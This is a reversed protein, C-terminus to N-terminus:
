RNRINELLGAAEVEPESMSGDKMYRVFGGCMVNRPSVRYLRM